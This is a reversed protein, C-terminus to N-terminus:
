HGVNEAIKESQDGLSQVLNTTLEIATQRQSMLSQLQVMQLESGSNLDSGCGQLDSVYTQMETSGLTNDAYPTTTDPPYAAKDIYDIHTGGGNSSSTTGTGSYVLNNYIQTLKGIEPSSPDTNQFQQILGGLSTELSTCTAPDSTVGSSHQQFTQIVTQLASSESNSLEQEQMIGNAQGDIQDLRAQCYAMLADPTLEVDADADASSVTPSDLPTLAIGNENTSATGGDLYVFADADSTTLYPPTTLSFTMKKRSRRPHEPPL